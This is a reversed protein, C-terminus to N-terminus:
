SHIHLNSEKKKLCFVAYSIYGHSSNLRTSKRDRQVLSRCVKVDVKPSLVAEVAVVHNLLVKALLGRGAAGNACINGAKAVRTVTEPMQARQALIMGESWTEGVRHAEAEVTNVQSESGVAEEVGRFEIDAHRRPGRDGAAQRKSRSLPTSPFLPSRPPRRIM